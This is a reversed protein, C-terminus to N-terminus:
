RGFVGRLRPLQGVILALVVMGAGVFCANRLAEAYGITAVDIFPYPYWDLIAGRVLTYVLFLLPFALWLLSTKISISQKPLHTLWDFLLAAPLVYHFVANVWFIEIPLDRLMVFYIIGTIVMFLTAAGRLAPHDKGTFSLGILLLAALTTSEVTFFSFYNVVSFGEITNLGHVIDTVIAAIGLIGLGLRYLRTFASTKM